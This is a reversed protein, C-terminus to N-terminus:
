GDGWGVSWPHMHEGSQTYWFVREGANIREVDADDLEIRCCFRKGNETVDILAEIARITPHLMDGGPPAIVLRHAGEWIDEDPIPTPNM